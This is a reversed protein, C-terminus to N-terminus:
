ASDDGDEERAEDPREPEGAAEESELAFDVITAEDVPEFMGLYELFGETPASGDGTAGQAVLTVLAFALSANM